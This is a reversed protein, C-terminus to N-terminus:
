SRAVMSSSPNGCTVFCNSAIDDNQNPAFPRTSRVKGGMIIHHGGWGHDTGASTNPTVTRGFESSVVVTIGEWVGLDVLADRFGKLVPGIEEFKAQLVSKLDFHTDFGGLSIAFSDRNIGRSEGTNIFVSHSNFRATAGIMDQFLCIV